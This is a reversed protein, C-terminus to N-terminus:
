PDRLAPLRVTCFKGLAKWRFADRALLAIL